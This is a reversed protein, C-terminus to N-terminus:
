HLARARHATFEIGAQAHIQLASHSCAQVLASMVSAPFLMM